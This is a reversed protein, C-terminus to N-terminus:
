LKAVLTHDARPEPTLPWSVGTTAASATIGPQANAVVVRFGDEATQGDGGTVTVWVDWEGDWPFDCVAPLTTLTPDVEWDKGLNRPPDHCQRIVWRYIRGM